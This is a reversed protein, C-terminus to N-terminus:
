LDALFTRPHQTGRRGNATTELNLRPSFLVWPCFNRAVDRCPQVLLCLVRLRLQRLIVQLLDDTSLSVDHVRLVSQVTVM